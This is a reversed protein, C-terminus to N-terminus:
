EHYNKFKKMWDPWQPTPANTDFKRHWNLKWLEKLGIKRVSFDGLVGNIFGDHRNMCFVCMQKDTSEAPIMWLYQYGDSPPPSNTAEPYSDIWLSDLLLPVKGASKVNVTRWNNSTPLGFSNTTVEPSPNCVWGNIGYSGFYPGQLDTFPPWFVFETTFAAFPPRGGEIELRTALPCFLLNSSNGANNAQRLAGPWESSAAPLYGNNNDAYISFFLGWQKLNSQCATVNAQRKVSSLTPTM